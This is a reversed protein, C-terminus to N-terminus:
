NEDYTRIVRTAKFKERGLTGMPVLEVDSEVNLNKKFADEVRKKLAKRDKVDPKYEMKVKLLQLEGPKDVIIQYDTAL